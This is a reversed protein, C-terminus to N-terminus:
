LIFIQNQKTWSSGIALTEKPKALKMFKKSDSGVDIIVNSHEYDKMEATLVLDQGICCDAM